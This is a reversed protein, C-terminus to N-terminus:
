KLANLRQAIADIEESMQRLQNSDEANSSTLDQLRAVFQSLDNSVKQQEKAIEQCICLEDPLGCVNCIAAM